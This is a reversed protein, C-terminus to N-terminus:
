AKPVAAGANERPTEEGSAAPTTAPPTAPRPTAALRLQQRRAAKVATVGIFSFLVLAIAYVVRVRLQTLVLAVLTVGVVAFLASIGYLAFVARKVGGLSRKLQHHIHQDDAASMPTGALRRRIIALTTDIIPLSFVILGAFVLHTQGRDGLMLIIVVCMYGLLLSGCDGLFISAPNFNHPLFGLVAGLLAVSLVIRAGALSVEGEPLAGAVPALLLCIALLGIAVVGVVGSLLGDLGDILNASNCGGLVFIAILATGVWYVTDFSAVGLPTNFTFVLEQSGLLPDVWRAVPTLLGAAVKVGVSEMALAAAAVLQGAIKLRPDWGWVDDALGTFTIAVMGIVVAFPVPLFGAPLHTGTFYSMGIAVILGLFVAMGGLYAVPYAHMKRDSDPHDVVGAAIALRRIIPTALLTVLFAGVFLHAYANLLDIAGGPQVVSVLPELTMPEDSGLPLPSRTM